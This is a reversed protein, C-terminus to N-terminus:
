KLRKLERLFWIYAFFGRMSATIAIGMWVGNVGFVGALFSAIPIRLANCAISVVFQPITRGLGRMSGFSIAELCGFIECLALIRLFSAGMETLSPDPLFFRFVPRGLTMLIVAVVAGWSCWSLLAIKVGGKIRELKMAGYNQGVFAAVSTAIGEGTLWCISEIQSGVKCVAIAGAGFGAALRSIFMTFFTFLFNVLALPATWKLIAIIVEADPKEFFSFREFPRDRKRKMAAVSVACVVAQSISTAAAAGAVGMRLKFIFFVDLVVNLVLGLSNIAFPARSNGAGTFVGAIAGAVFVAPVALGVIVLYTRAGASVSEESVRFFGILNKSFAVVTAGYILGVLLALCISNRAFSEARAADQRGLNQAVGIEAGMKGILLFGESMWVYMGAIGSSAVADSSVRGLLFMDILNYSMLLLQTGIIPLAVLLLKDLIRGETLDYKSKANSSMFEPCRVKLFIINM